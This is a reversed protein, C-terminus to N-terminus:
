SRRAHDFVCKKGKPPIYMLSFSKGTKRAKEVVSEVTRGEAISTGTRQADIAVFRSNACRVKVHIAHSM